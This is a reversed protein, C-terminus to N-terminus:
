KKNRSLPPVQKQITFYGCAGEGKPLCVIFTNEWGIRKDEGLPNLNDNQLSIDLVATYYPEILNANKDLIYDYMEKFSNFEKQERMSANLSGRVPRFILKM